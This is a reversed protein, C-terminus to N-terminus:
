LAPQGNTNIITVRLFTADSAIRKLAAEYTRFGGTKYDSTPNAFTFSLTYKGNPQQDISIAVALTTMGM